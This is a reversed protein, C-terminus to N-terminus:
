RNHRSPTTSVGGTLGSYDTDTYWDNLTENADLNTGVGFWWSQLVLLMITM